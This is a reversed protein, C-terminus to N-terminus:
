MGPSIGRCGTLGQCGALDHAGPSANGILGSAIVLREQVWAMQAEGEINGWVFPRKEQGARPTPHLM